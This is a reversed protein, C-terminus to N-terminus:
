RSDEFDPNPADQNGGLIIGARSLMLIYSVCTISQLKCGHCFLLPIADKVPSPQFVYHIDLADYGEVKISTMYQPIENLKAEAKRWDFTKWAEALRKVEKLPAGYRWQDDSDLEDPFTATDLKKRLNDIKSEPVDIKYSSM